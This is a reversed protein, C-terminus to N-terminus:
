ICNAMVETVAMLFFFVALIMGLVTATDVWSSIWVKVEKMELSAIKVTIVFAHIFARDFFSMPFMTLGKTIWIHLVFQVSYM